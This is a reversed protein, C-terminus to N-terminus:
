FAVDVTRGTLASEEAAFAMVHSHSRSPRSPVSEREGKLISVFEEMISETAATSHSASPDAQRHIGYCSTRVGAGFQTVEIVNNDM